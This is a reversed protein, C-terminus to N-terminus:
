TYGLYSQLLIAASLGDIFQTRKKRKMGSEKLLKEAQLSSLREDFLSVPCTVQQQLLVLFHSVEEALLSIKGNLHIPNGIIIHELEYKKLVQLINLITEASNKGAQVLGLSTAIIKNEDSIALGIRKQGYDISAVRPKAM